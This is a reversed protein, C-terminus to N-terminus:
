RLVVKEAYDYLKRNLLMEGDRKVVVYGLRPFHTEMWDPIQDSELMCLIKSAIEAEGTETGLVTAQVVDSQAPLGTRGDLIHHRPVGGQLWSRHLVNSTAIAAERVWLQLLEEQEEQPHQIGIYWPEADSWVFLDGGGDVMGESIAFERRMMASARDVTWGKGIGGLDLEADTHRAVKWGAESFALADPDTVPYFAALGEVPLQTDQLHEFSRDYGLRRLSEAIFPQFRYGTKVAYEWAKQLLSYLSPSVEMYQGPLAQNLRSLESDPLFRSAKREIENFWQIVPRQWYALPTETRGVACMQTNMARFEVGPYHDATSAPSRRM